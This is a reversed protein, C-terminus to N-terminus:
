LKKLDYPISHYMVGSFYYEAVREHFLWENM